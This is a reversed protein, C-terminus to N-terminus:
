AQFDNALEDLQVAQAFCMGELWGVSPICITWREEEGEGGKGLFGFIWSRM